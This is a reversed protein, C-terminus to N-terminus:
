NGRFDKVEFGSLILRLQQILGERCPAHPFIVKISHNGSSILDSSNFMGDANKCDLALCEWFWLSIWIFAMFLTSLLSGEYTTPWVPSIRPVSYDRTYSSIRSSKETSLISCSFIIWSFGSHVRIWKCSQLRHLIFPDFRYIFQSAYKFGVHAYCAQFYTWTLEPLSILDSLKFIFADLVMSMYM